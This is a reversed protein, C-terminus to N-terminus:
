AAFTINNISDNKVQAEKTNQKDELAGKWGEVIPFTLKFNTRKFKYAQEL